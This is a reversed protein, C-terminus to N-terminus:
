YIDEGKAKVQEAPEMKPENITELNEPPVVGTKEIKLFEWVTSGTKIKARDPLQFGSSEVFKDNLYTGATSKQDFLEYRGARCLILAHENSLTQDNTLQVDCARGGESEVTGRGIYNKGDYIPYLRGERHWSFTVLVGTITRGHPMPQERKTSQSSTREDILTESKSPITEGKEIFTNQRSMDINERNPLEQPPSTEEKMNKELRCAPCEEWNPDMPHKGARCLHTNPKKSSFLRSKLENIWGKNLNDNM